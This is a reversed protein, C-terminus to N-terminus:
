KQKILADKAKLAKDYEDKAKLAKDQAEKAILAAEKAKSAADETLLEPFLGRAGLVVSNDSVPPLGFM